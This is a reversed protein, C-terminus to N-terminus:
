EGRQWTHERLGFDVDRYGLNRYLSHALDSSWIWTDAYGLRGIERMMAHTIAAGLGQRRFDPPTSVDYISASGGADLVTGSTVPTDGLFGTYHVSFADTGYGHRAYADYFCSGLDAGFGAESVAAWEAMMQDDRVRELRFGDPVDPARGLASLDAYLWNGGRSGPMGRAALRAGLDGPTDDPFVMWDVSDTHRGAEHLTDDIREEAAEAPWRARLIVNGPAPRGSVFWFAEADDRMHTGPVVAFLRMYAILNAQVLGPMGGGTMDQPVVTVPMGGSDIPCGM